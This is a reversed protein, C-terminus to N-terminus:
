AARRASRLPVVFPVSLYVAMFLKGPEVGEVHRHRADPRGRGEEPPHERARAGETAQRRRGEHRRITLSAFGPRPHSRWTASWRRSYKGAVLRKQGMALRRIIQELAHRRGKMTVQEMGM